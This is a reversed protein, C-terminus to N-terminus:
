PLTFRSGWKARNGNIPHKIFRASQMYNRVEPIQEIRKRFEQLNPCENLIGPVLLSEVDLWEYAMFDAHSFGGGSFFKNNGLFKSLATVKIPLEQKHGTILNDFDPNYFVASSQGRYDVLQQETLDIRIKERDTKGELGFIRALYRHIAISQSIKVDGDYLYPLNPFDLPLSPKVAFWKAKSFDPPPGSEHFEDVFDARVAALLLRIPQAAGRINWYGLVIPAM